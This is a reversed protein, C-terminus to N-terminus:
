GVKVMAVGPFLYMRGSELDKCKSRTRLKEIKVFTRGDETQFQQDVAVEDMFKWGRRHKDHQKLAKYLQPDTCTSAAPNQLYDNLAEEVNDPFIGKGTFPLLTQKFRHKWEAGHPAVKNRYQVYTLLHALEHLLTILFSYPNMTANVSIRHYPQEKTPSRYDGLVSKREYTLNLYIIHEKFYPMVMKSTDPPLFQALSQLPREEKPM